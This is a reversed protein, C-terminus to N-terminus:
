SHGTSSPVSAVNPKGNQQAEKLRLVSAILMDDAQMKLNIVHDDGRRVIRLNSARLLYKDLAALPEAKGAVMACYFQLIDDAYFTRFGNDEVGDKITIAMRQLADRARVVREPDSRPVSALASVFYEFEGRVLASVFDEGKTRSAKQMTRKPENDLAVRAASLDYEFSRMFNAFAPLEDKIKNVMEEIIHIAGREDTNKARAITQWLKREQRPSINMRRDGEEIRGADFHNSFFIMQFFNIAEKYETKMARVSYSDETAMLRLRNELKKSGQADSHRFEDVLIMTKQALNADFKDELEETTIKKTNSAGFLPAIIHKWMIGKGTGQIGQMIWTTGIKEKTNVAAALWNLFHRLELMSNNFVHTMVYYSVPAVTRLVAPGTDYNAQMTPVNKALQWVRSEQYQNFKEVPTGNPVLEIDYVVPNQPNYVLEAFQIEEPPVGGHHAIYDKAAKESGFSLVRHVTNSDNEYEIGFLEGGRCLDRRVCVRRGSRNVIHERYRELIENYFNENADRLRFIPEGKFNYVFEPNNKPWYYANSDGGNINAHVFEGADDTIEFFMEDPNQIVEYSDSGFRINKTKFKKDSLGMAKRLESVKKASLDKIQQPSSRCTVNEVPVLIRDKQVWMIRDEDDIPNMDRDAFHPHAIFILKTNDAVTPDLPWLLTAQSKSLSLHKDLEPVTLNMLRLWNKQSEPSLPKDLVFELHMSIKDQARVAMSSSVHLFYSYGQLAPFWALVSDAVLRLVNPGWTDRPTMALKNVTRNKLATDRDQAIPFNPLERVDLPLKDLDLILTQNPKRTLGRGARPEEVLEGDLEGKLLCGGRSATAKLMALRDLMGRETLAFQKTESTFNKAMPYPHVTGDADFSKVLRLGNKGYLVTTSLATM